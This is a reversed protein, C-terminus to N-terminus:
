FSQVAFHGSSSTVIDIQGWFIVVLIVVMIIAVDIEVPMVVVGAVGSGLSCRCSSCTSAITGSIEVESPFLVLNRFEETGLALICNGCSIEDSSQFIEVFCVSPCICLGVVV